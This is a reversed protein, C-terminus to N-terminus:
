IDHLVDFDKKVKYRWLYFEDSLGVETLELRYRFVLSVGCISSSLIDRRARTYGICCGTVTLVTFKHEWEWQGASYVAHDIRVAYLTESFM